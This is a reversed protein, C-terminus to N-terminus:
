RGLLRGDRWNSQVFFLMSPKHIRGRRVQSDRWKLLHSLGRLPRHVIGALVHRRLETEVPHDKVRIPALEFLM